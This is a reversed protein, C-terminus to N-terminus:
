VRSVTKGKGKEIDRHDQEVQLRSVNNIRDRSVCVVKMEIKLAVHYMVEKELSVTDNDAREREGELGVQVAVGVQDPVHVAADGEEVAAHM